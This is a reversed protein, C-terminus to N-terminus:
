IRAAASNGALLKDSMFFFVVIFDTISFDGNSQM